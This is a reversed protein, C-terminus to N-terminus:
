PRRLEVVCSSIIDDHGCCVGADSPAMPKDCSCEALAAPECRRGNTAVAVFRPADVLTKPPEAYKKPARSWYFGPGM